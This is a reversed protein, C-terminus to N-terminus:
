HALGQKRLFDIVAAALVKNGAPNLHIDAPWYVQEGQKAHQTLAPTADFCIMLNTQCFALMNNRGQSYLALGEQGLYSRTLPSYVEEKSPILVVVFTAGNDEAEKKASLLADQTMGWGRQVAKRRFDFVEQFWKSGFRLSVQGSQVQFPDVANPDFNCRLEFIIAFIASHTDLWEVAPSIDSCPGGPPGHGPSANSIQDLLADDSSDNGWWQWIVLRPKYPLGFTDLVRQHSVSGTAPLGLDVMSLGYDSQLRAVWCDPYQTFCFSFSDGVVVADVPWRPQWDLSPVRFGIHSNRDLWNITTINLVAAGGGVQWRYHEAQRTIPGFYGDTRVLAPPVIIEDSWPYMRVSTLTEHISVPLLDLRAAVRILIEALLWGALLGAILTGIRGAWIVWRAQSPAPASAPQAVSM